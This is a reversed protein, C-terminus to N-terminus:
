TPLFPILKLVNAKEILKSISYVEFKTYLQKDIISQVTGPSVSKNDIITLITAIEKPSKNLSLYYLVESERKTRYISQDQRNIQSEIGLRDNLFLIKYSQIIRQIEDILEKFLRQTKQEAQYVQKEHELQLNKLQLQAADKEATIDMSTGILGIIRGSTDRLPEKRSLWITQRGGFTQSNEESVVAEGTAIVRADVNRISEADDKWPMDFDTLGVIDEKCKLGADIAQLDNCGLFVGQLDKWYLHGPALAIVDKLCRSTNQETCNRLKAKAM